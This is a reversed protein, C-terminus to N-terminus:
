RTLFHFIFDVGKGGVERGRAAEEEQKSLTSLNRWMCRNEDTKIM